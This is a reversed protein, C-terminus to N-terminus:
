FRLGIKSFLIHSPRINRPITYKPQTFTICVYYKLISAQEQVSMMQHGLNLM